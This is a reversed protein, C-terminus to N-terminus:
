YLFDGKLVYNEIWSRDVKGKLYKEIMLGAISAGARSGWGSNEVYVSIAIEPAELPAFGMCVAHDAGHSNEATGTKACVTIDEIHARWAPGHAVVDRMAYVMADFHAKDIAVEHRTFQSPEVMQKDIAKILHPQYYYGRNAMIAALNAMQLPTLLMEGQGIDLSRITSAKWAGKGYRSDYFSGDPLYGGKEHPIDVGLPKGLGFQRVYTLWKELGIRTDEYVNQSSNQNIIKRFVHYFYPNCSYQIAQHLNVPSPHDRCNLISKNCAYTTSPYILNEQLAILAQVLKFISGPPYMAMIPRNFLPAVTDKELAAFYSCFNKGILLNPDYSPSSVMALIEGTSPQIAVISGIKNKMLQEGYEQLSRDITVTLDQGPIPLVDLAGNKFNGKEQGRADTIL